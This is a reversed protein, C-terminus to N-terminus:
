KVLKAAYEILFIKPAIWIQLWKFDMMGFGMLIPFFFFSNFLFLPGSDREIRMEMRSSDYKMPVRETWYKYQLYLCYFSCVILAIAIFFQIFSKVAEWLLLQHIVDPIEAELFDAGSELAQIAKEILTAVAQQLQENM